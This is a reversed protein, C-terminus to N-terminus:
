GFTSLLTDLNDFTMAVGEKFGRQVMFELIDSTAYKITQRVTTVGNSENFDVNNESGKFEPNVNGDKDAFASIYKINTKPSISTYDQTSWHEEGGPSRMAYLRRGGVKFNMLKTESVWPKPAGWQDLIEKKTFADWVLSLEAAFERTVTIRNTAKDVIFDFLLDNNM